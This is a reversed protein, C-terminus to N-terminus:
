RVKVCRLQKQDRVLLKGDSLALPAWCQPTALVSGSALVKLEAPDPEILYLVGKRGDLTLLLGDALLMGGKDFYPANGSKWKVDGELDMCVLGDSRGTNTTCHGYLHGRYLM